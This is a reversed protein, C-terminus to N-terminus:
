RRAPFRVEARKRHALNQHRTLSSSRGLTPVPYTVDAVVAQTSRVGLPPMPDGPKWAYDPINRIYIGIARDYATAV